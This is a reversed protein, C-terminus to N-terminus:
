CTFICSGSQGKGKGVRAMHGGQGIELGQGTKCPVTQM